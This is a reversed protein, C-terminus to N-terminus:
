FFGIAFAPIVDSIQSPSDTVIELAVDCNESETLQVRLPPSPVNVFGEVKDGVYLETGPSDPVTIRVNVASAILGHVM